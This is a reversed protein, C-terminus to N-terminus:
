LRGDAEGKADRASKENLAEEIFKLSRMVIRNHEESRTQPGFYHMTVTFRPCEGSGNQIEVDFIPWDM